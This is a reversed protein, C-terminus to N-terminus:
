RATPVPVAVTLYNALVQCTAFAKILRILKEKCPEKWTNLSFAWATSPVHNPLLFRFDGFYLYFFLISKGPPLLSMREKEFFLFYIQFASKHPENELHVAPGPWALARPRTPPLVAADPSGPGDRRLPSTQLCASHPHQWCLHHCGRRRSSVNM